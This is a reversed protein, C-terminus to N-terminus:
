AAVLKSRSRLAAGLGGFGILMLGWTAPEPVGLVQVYNVSLDEVDGVTGTLTIDNLWHGSSDYRGLTGSFVNSVYYFTGDFAIGTNGSANQGVIFNPTLLTGTTSYVDYTNAGGFGGDYRNSVLHGNAFELGDCFSACNSLPITNVLTGGVTYEYVNNTGSYDGLFFHSGDYAMTALGSAGPVTFVTGLDTDTVFNYAYVGNTSASTYYVINGVQVVGRGNSGHPASITKLLNGSLDYEQLVPPGFSASDTWITSVAADAASSLGGVAAVAAAAVLFTTLTKM